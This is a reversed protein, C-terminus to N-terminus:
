KDDNNGENNQESIWRDIEKEDIVYINGVKEAKLQDFKIMLWIWQRSKNTLKAAETLSILKM